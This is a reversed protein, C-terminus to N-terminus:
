HKFRTNYLDVGGRDVVLLQYGAQSGGALVNDNLGRSKVDHRFRDNLYESLELATLEGNQDFDAFGQPAEEASESFNGYLPTGGLTQGVAPMSTLALAGPLVKETISFLSIPAFFMM